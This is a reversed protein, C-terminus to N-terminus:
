QYACKGGMDTPKGLTINVNDNWCNIVNLRDQHAEEPSNVSHFQINEQTIINKHYAVVKTSGYIVIRHAPVAKKIALAKLAVELGIGNIDGCTIGITLNSM